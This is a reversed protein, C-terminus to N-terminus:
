FKNIKIIVKTGQNLKSEIYINGGHNKIIEYCISLGLGMGENESKTTYFPDFIKNIIEESIGKGNDTIEIYVNEEKDYTRINIIGNNEIAQIANSIINTLVQNIQIANAKIKAKSLYEKEIKIRTGFKHELLKLTSEINKGIEIEDNQKTENRNFYQMDRVIKVLRDAGEVIGEILSQINDIRRNLNINKKLIVIDQMFKDKDSFTELDIFKDLLNVILGINKKLPNLSTYIFNVPNNIEHTLGAIMKGLSAMKESQILKKQTNELEMEAKKTDDIDEIIIIIGRSINQSDVMEGYIKCWFIEGSKKKLQVEISCQHSKLIKKYFTLGITKYVSEDKFLLVASHSIIETEDFGFLQAFKHNCWIIHRKKLFAIGILNNNLIINRENLTNRLKEELKKRSTIDLFSGIIGAKSGDINNFVSKYLIVDHKKGDSYFLPMEHILFQDNSLIQQDFDKYLESFSLPTIDLISKGILEEKDLNFIRAFLTNCGIVKSDNNNYFIPNPISDILSNLFHIQEKLSKELNRYETIDHIMEIFGVVEEKINIKEFVPSYRIDLIRGDKTHIINKIIKRKRLAEECGCNSCIANKNKRINYCKKGIIDKLSTKYYDLAAKNAWIINRDLNQYTICIDIGDLIAKKEAENNILQEHQKNFQYIINNNPEIFSLYLFLKYIIYFILYRIILDILFIYSNNMTYYLYFCITSIIFLGIIIYIKFIKDKTFSNKKFYLIILSTSYILLIFIYCLYGILNLENDNQTLEIINCFRFFYLVSAFLVSNIIFILSHKLKKKVFLFILASIIILAEYLRNIILIDDYIYINKNEYAILIVSLEIFGIFLFSFGIVHFLNNAKIQRTNWTIIFISFILFLNIIRLMFISYVDKYNYMIIIVISIVIFIILDLLKKYNNCNM